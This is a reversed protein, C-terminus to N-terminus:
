YMLPSRRVHRLRVIRIETRLIRYSIRYNYKEFARWTGDNNKRYPDLPYKESHNELQLTLDILVERVKIANERSDQAIHDYAKKLEAKARFSWVTVM